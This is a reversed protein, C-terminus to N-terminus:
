RKEFEKLRANIFHKIDNKRNKLEIEKLGRSSFKIFDLAVQILKVGIDFYDNYTKLYHRLDHRIEYAFASMEDTPKKTTYKQSKIPNSETVTNKNENKILDSYIKALSGAGIIKGNINFDLNEGITRNTEVIGDFM